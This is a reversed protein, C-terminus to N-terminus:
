HPATRPSRAPLRWRRQKAVYESPLVGELREAVSLWELARSHEGKREEDDAMALALQVAQEHDPASGRAHGDTVPDRDQFTPPEPAPRELQALYPSLYRGAIKGPPWWLAQSSIEPPAVGSTSARLYLPAGGTLLIARLVPAFPQPPGTAGLRSAITQAAVDAQQTALGGQKIPHDAGDGAAFM